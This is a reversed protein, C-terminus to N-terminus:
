RSPRQVHTGKRKKEKESFGNIGTGTIFFFFIRVAHVVSNKKKIFGQEILVRSEAPKRNNLAAHNKRNQVRLKDSDTNEKKKNKINEYDENSPLFKALDLKAKM